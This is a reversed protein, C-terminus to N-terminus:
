GGFSRGLLLGLVATLVSDVLILFRRCNLAQRVAAGSNIVVEAITLQRGDLLCEILFIIRKRLAAWDSREFLRALAALEGSLSSLCARRM